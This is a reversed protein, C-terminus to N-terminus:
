SQETWMHSDTQDEKRGFSIHHAASSILSAEIVSGRAMMPEIARLAVRTKRM